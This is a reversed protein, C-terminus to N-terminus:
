DRTTPISEVRERLSRENLSTGYWKEFFYELYDVLTKAHDITIMIDLKHAADNGANKFKIIAPVDQADLHGNNNLWDITNNLSKKANSSFTINKHTTFFDKLMNEMCHRSLMASGRLTTDLSDHAEQYDQFIPDPVKYINKFVQKELNTITQLSGNPHKMEVFLTFEDCQKNPCFIVKIKLQLLSSSINVGSTTILRDEVSGLDSSIESVENCIERIEFLINKGIIDGPQRSKEIRPIPVKDLKSLIKQLQMETDGSSFGTAPNISRIYEVDIANSAIQNCRPCKWGKM